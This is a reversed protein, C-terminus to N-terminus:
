LPISMHNVAVGFEYNTNIFAHLIETAGGPGSRMADTRFVFNNGDILVVAFQNRAKSIRILM